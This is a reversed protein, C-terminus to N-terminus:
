VHRALMDEALAISDPQGVDCWTGPWMLGHLTGRALMREWVLNLSFVEEPIVALDDTRILQLGTYIASPARRLRGTADIEFDGAGRHGIARDKPVLLLLADMEDRWHSLLAGVPDPGAWVADANLTLVPSGGLLPLAHRLGGGTERLLDTEDSYLVDRGALHARVQDPMVHLNVVRRTVGARDLLDLAHDILPRGAVDILPKPGTRTLPLMRMGKGAAFVMAAPTM